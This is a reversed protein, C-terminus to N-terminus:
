RSLIVVSEYDEVTSLTWNDVVVDAHGTAPGSGVSLPFMILLLADCAVASVLSSYTPANRDLILTICCLCGSYIYCDVKDEFLFSYSSGGCLM